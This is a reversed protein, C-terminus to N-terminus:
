LVKRRTDLVLSFDWFMSCSSHDRSVTPRVRLSVDICLLTLGKFMEHVETLLHIEHKLKSAAM